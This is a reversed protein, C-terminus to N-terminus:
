LRALFEAPRGLVGIIEVLMDTSYVPTFDGNRLARLIEGTVGQPRILASVFVGTDIVARM